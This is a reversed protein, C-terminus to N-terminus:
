EVPRFAMSAQVPFDCTCGSSAEPVLLLGGAPIINIWCGPRSVETVKSLKKTKLNFSAVNQQRFYITSKSASFTGCGRRHAPNWGWDKIIKGSTIDYAYPEMYLKNEIVLPHHDQEGHDGGSKTKNNQTKKWILDGSKVDFTYVDVHVTGKENRAGTVVIRNNAIVSFVSHEILELSIPKRWAEKGTKLDIAVLDSGKELLAKPKARGPTQSLLEKNYSEILYLHSSDAVLSSHIIPGKKAPHTWSLSGGQVSQSFVSRAYVIPRADYYTGETIAERSLERRISGSSVSSGLLQDKVLSVFGWEDSRFDEPLSFTKVKEGTEKKLQICRNGSAIFVGSELMAMSGADRMAGVRRSEPIVQDWLVFGNYADVGYLRNNGPVILYGDKYLPSVTRFHRDLMERPGPEGFWQLALESGVFSDGSSATNSANAYLHTWEGAGKLKPRVLSLFDGFGTSKLKWPHSRVLQGRLDFAEKEKLPGILFEGGEPRILPILNKILTSQPHVRNKGYIWILNAVYDPYVLPKASDFFQVTIRDSLGLKFVYEQKSKFRKLNNELLVVKRHDSFDIFSAAILPNMGVLFIYGKPRATIDELVPSLYYPNRNQYRDAIEEEWEHVTSDESTRNVKFSYVWGKSTSVLLREHAVALSRAEGEVETGWVMEGSKADFAAVKNLGGAIRLNGASILAFSYDKPISQVAPSHLKGKRKLDAVFKEPARGQKVFLQTGRLSLYGQPSLGITERKIIKGSKVDVACRFTGQKPFLGCCAFAVGNEIVVGTRIPWKSIIHGNGPIRDSAPGLLTKWVLTGDLANLCYLYGDDCGFYVRQEYLTPALRIPGETFFRWKLKGTKPDLCRLQNDASSGYYVGNADAVVEFSRDFTIRAPLNYKKGWFNQKAPPPWAPSPAFLNKYQWSLKLPPKLENPTFGTRKNDRRYTPWDQSDNVLPVVGPHLSKYSDFRKQVAEKSLSRNFIAVKSIAGKLPYYENDDLYAGVSFTSKPPYLIKGKQVKSTAQLTGDVYLSQTVGDYTGVIHYWEGPEFAIKSDLYTLVGDGDNAGETSLAFSFRRGHTGLVWGKEYNGNDQLCSIVGGWEGIADIKVWAELTFEKVPRLAQFQNPDKLLLVDERKKANGNLRLAFPKSSEFQVEGQKHLLVKSGQSSLPNKDEQNKEKSFQWELVPQAEQSLLTESSCPPFMFIAVMAFMVITALSNKQSDLLSFKFFQSSM